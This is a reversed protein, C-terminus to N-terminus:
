EGFIRKWWPEKQKQDQQPKSEPAPAGFCDVQPAPLVDLIAPVSIAEACGPLSVEGTTRNFHAIGLGAPFRRSLSKPAQRQQYDIFVSLAGSAGTLGTQQNDDDGLWTTILSNRDFGAFWSDRYDDTTGTKGAMNVKEFTDRIRKATGEITVKHLAYNTLYSAAEDVRQEAYNSHQWMLRNDPSVVAVVAHLPRYLGANAITQYMQSVDVLNLDIAGLTMAPVLPVDRQIGLRRLTDAVDELGVDLGLNVTPVNLSNVLADVLAVTGRFKKDANQPQWQQGGKDDLSIPEDRLPTALNFRSPEELATLYIAPKILSGVPRLADLARNFGSYAPDTSGVIARLEGSAIDTVLMAGQLSDLKRARTLAGAQKTLAAEARRQANIDLGTFVKVGSERIDPAALIDQLERRVKDMYAPHKGSALSAGSAIQIPQNVLTEYDQASIENNEFLVKLVLDRREMAREPYRRPNYYSPGKVMGVLLAIEATDLETIPRDFYFHSGLGFGHVGLDGNQGIFVENLYAELIQDKSYRADIVIAMLAEKIKRVLSKERTLYLNKVLQQTLTSGGQVTRGAALNAILARAISLPAVGHHQYFDRDEVLTLANVLMPPVENINLLMRDERHSSVLRSVLWPELRIMDLQTASNFSSQRPLAELIEHVRSGKWRVRILRAEERGDVFDFARRNFTLQNRSHQYEGTDTVQAVKRYGLLTLEDIIEQPTIEQETNITLARAFIQAPVQWKNGSFHHKITADLYFLYAGMAVMAVLMLKFLLWWWRRGKAAKNERVPSVKTKAKAAQNNKKKSPLTVARHQSSNATYFAESTM